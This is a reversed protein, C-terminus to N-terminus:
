KNFPTKFKELKPEGGWMEIYLKKNKKVIEAMQPDKEMTQSSRYVYPNLEVLKIPNYGKLRMRYEYSNDEYYAPYFEENFNGVNDWIKKSILFACWDPTARLFQGKYKKRELLFNIVPTKQGLYIDDNLILANDYGRAFIKNCLINWSGAVGYNKDAKILHVHNFNQISQNGNDLLFIEINPFDKAYLMLSPKLLDYRNLTPIGIAFKNEKM